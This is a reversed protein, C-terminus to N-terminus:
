RLRIAPHKHRVAWNELRVFQPFQINSAIKSVQLANKSCILKNLSM